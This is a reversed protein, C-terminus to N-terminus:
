GGAAAARPETAPQPVRLPHPWEAPHDGRRQPARPHPRGPVPRRSPRLLPPHVGPGPGGPGAPHGRHLAPHHGLHGGPRAPLVGGARHRGRDALAGPHGPGGGPRQGARLDAGPLDRLRRPRHVASPSPPGRGSVDAMRNADTRLLDAKTPERGLRARAEAQDAEYLQHEIRALEDTVIAGSVPDLTMQGHWIGDFGETLSVKRKTRDRESRDDTGDADALQVWYSLARRFERFSLTRAQAVLLGEDRFLAAETRPNWVQCVAELHDASLEGAGFAARCAPLSRLARGHRALRFTRGKALRGRAALWAAATQAGDDAWQGSAEFDAMAESRFADLRSCLVELTAMSEGDACSSPGTAVLHGIAESLAELEM